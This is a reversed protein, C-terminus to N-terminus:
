GKEVATGTHSGMERCDGFVHDFTAHSNNLDVSLNRTRTKQPTFLPLFSTPLTQTNSSNHQFSFNMNPSHMHQVQQSRSAITALPSSKQLGATSKGQFIDPPTQISFSQFKNQQLSLSFRDM